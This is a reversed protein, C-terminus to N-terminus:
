IIDIFMDILWPDFQEGAYRKIEEKAAEKSMAKRYPRDNIMADYSDVIALIRCQIPIEKGKLGFPYGTGDWKEHHKLIWDSIHVLDPSTQAIRYGIESHKKMIFWEDDTLKGPKFLILDPIGIKGIDHFQALMRMDKIESDSMGIKQCLIVVSKMLREAHDETNFDRVELMKMVIDVNKSRQSQFNYLKERYMYDDAEKYIDNITKTNDGLIAYGLSISVPIRSGDNYENAMEKVKFKIENLKKESTGRILVAFEDGGIRAIIDNKNFCARLINSTIRIYADGEAHGMTDNILKLGDIDCIVMGANVIGDNTYVLIVSEFYNRNYLGTLADHMSMDFVKIESIKRQTIDRVIALLKDGGYNVLRAEFYFPKNDFPLCYEYIKSGGDAIVSEMSKKFGNSIQLPFIDSICKEIFYERPYYTKDGEASLYDIFIGKRDLIFVLDPITEIITRIKYESERLAEIANNRETIDVYTAIISDINNNIDFEPIIDAKVWKIDNYKERKIGMTFDHVPKRTLMVKNLPREEDKIISGDTNIISILDASSVEETWGVLKKFENNSIIPIGSSSFVAVGVNLNILLDKYREQSIKLKSMANILESTKSKVKRKLTYNWIVLLIIIFTVIALTFKIYKLYEPYYNNAGFWKNEIDKYEKDSILAFGSEVTSLLESNGKKVARHFEGTYLPASYKFKDAINTKYMYYLAPPKDVIFVIIKKDKAANVIDEYSDFEIIDTIGKEKLISESNDGKKVAVPFGRLSDIDTIGSINQNFFIPVDITAYPKSFDLSLAREKNYFMTDIVDYENNKMSNLANNWSVATIEVKIGTKEEWLRWEDILIGILKGDTDKFIYPPYNDDMVVRIKKYSSKFSNKNENNNRLYFTFATIIVILTITLYILKKRLNIRWELKYMSQLVFMLITKYQSKRWLVEKQRNLYVGVMQNLMLKFVMRETEPRQCSVRVPSSNTLLSNVGLVDRAM